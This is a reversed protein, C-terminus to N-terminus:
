VRLLGQTGATGNQEGSGLFRSPEAFASRIVLLWFGAEMTYHFESLPRLVGFYIRYLVGYAQSAPADKTMIRLTGTQTLLFVFRLRGSDAGM